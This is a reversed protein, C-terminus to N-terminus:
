PIFMVFHRKVTHFPINICNTLNMYFKGKKYVRREAEHSEQYSHQKMSLNVM